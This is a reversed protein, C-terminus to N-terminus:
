IAENDLGVQFTSIRTIPGAIDTVEFFVHDVQADSIGISGGTLNIEAMYFTDGTWDIVDSTVDIYQTTDTESTLTMTDSTAGLVGDNYWTVLLSPDTISPSVAVTVGTWGAAGSFTGSVSNSGTTAPNTTVALSATNGGAGNSIETQESAGGGATHTRNGMSVATLIMGKNEGTVSTSYSSTDGVATFAVSNTITDAGSFRSVAICSNTALASFSATVVGNGTPTGTAEWISVRSDGQDDSIDQVEAWTLGLGVISTIVSSSNKRSVMCFYKHNINSTVTGSIVSNTDGATGTVTDVYGVTNTAGPERRAEVGIRVKTVVDQGALPNYDFNFLSVFQGSTYFGAYTNNSSVINGRNVANGYFGSGSLTATESNGATDERLIGWIDVGEDVSLVTFAGAPLFDGRVRLQLPSVGIIATEGEPDNTIKIAKRNSVKTSDLQVAEVGVITQATIASSAPRIPVDTQVGTIHTHLGSKSEAGVTSEIQQNSDDDADFTEVFSRTVAAISDAQIETNLLQLPPTAGVVAGLVSFIFSSQATPGNTYKFRYYVAQGSPMTRIFPTNAQVEFTQTRFISTGDASTEISVEGAVDSLVSVTFSAFLAAPVLNSVTVEDGNLIHTTNFIRRELRGSDFHGGRWSNTRVAVNEATSGNSVRLRMPIEPNSISPVQVTNPYTITHLAIYGGDPVKAEFFLPAGGLWGYRIRYVNMLSTDLAEAVGVRRFQSFFLGTARDGNWDEQEVVDLDVGNSRRVIYFGGSDRRFFVGSSDDFQGIEIVGGPTTPPEIFAASFDLVTEHGPLYSLPYLTRADVSSDPLNGTYFETFGFNTQRAGTGYFDLSLNSEVNDDLDFRVSVEDNMSEVFQSGFSTSLIGTDVQLRGTTTPRINISKGTTPDFGKLYAFTQGMAANQEEIEQNALRVFQGDFEKRLTTTVFVLESGLPRGPEFAVRYYAGANILDFDRVTDFDGITRTESIPASGLAVETGTESFEFTFVGSIASDTAALVTLLRVVGITRTLEWDGVWPSGPSADASTIVKTNSTSLFQGIDEVLWPEATPSQAGQQVVIGYFSTTVNVDDDREPVIQSM